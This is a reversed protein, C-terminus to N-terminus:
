KVPKEMLKEIELKALDLESDNQINHKLKFYYHAEIEEL